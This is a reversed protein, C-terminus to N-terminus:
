RAARAQAMGDLIATAMGILAGEVEGRSMDAGISIPANFAVSSGGAGLRALAAGIGESKRFPVLAEAYGPREGFMGFTPRDVVGGGAFAVM